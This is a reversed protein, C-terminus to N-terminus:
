DYVSDMNFDDVEITPVSDVTDPNVESGKFDYNEMKYFVQEKAYKKEKAMEKKIQKEIRAKKASDNNDKNSGYLLSGFVMIFILLKKM